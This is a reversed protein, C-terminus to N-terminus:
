VATFESVKKVEPTFNDLMVVDSGASAAERAEEISRCEVEIKTSFGGVVRADKVAQFKTFCCQLRLSVIEMTILFCSAPIKFWQKTKCYLQVHKEVLCQILFLKIEYCMDSIIMYSNLYLTKGNFVCCVELGSVSSIKNKLNAWGVCTSTHLIAWFASWSPLEVAIVYIHVPVGHSM